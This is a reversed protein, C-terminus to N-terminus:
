FIMGSAARIINQAEVVPIDLIRSIRSPIESALKFITKIDNEILKLAKERDVGYIVTLKKVDQENIKQSTEVHKKLPESKGEIIPKPPETIKKDLLDEIKVVEAIKVDKIEINEVEISTSPKIPVEAEKQAKEAEIDEVIPKPLESKKEELLDGIKVVEAIKADEVEINEVEISTSPKIPVEAEKQAKEAEIDEVIPKPLESKKEELLDGIKVVEAIKADEVEINEVEISTSPKIPVEAEKQAKEAEIDEVIPKPPESIKEELLDGFKVDETIKVDKIEVKEM